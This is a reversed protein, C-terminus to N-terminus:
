DLNALRSLRIKHAVCINEVINEKQRKVEIHTNWMREKNKEDDRM